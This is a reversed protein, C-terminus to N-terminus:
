SYKFCDLHHQDSWRHGTELHRGSSVTSNRCTAGERRRYFSKGVPQRNPPTPGGGDWSSAKSIFCVKWEVLSAEENAKSRHAAPGWKWNCYKQTTGLQSLWSRSPGWHNKSTCECSQTPDAGELAQPCLVMYWGDMQHMWWMRSSLVGTGCSTLVKEPAKSLGRIPWGVTRQTWISGSSPTDPSVLPDSLPWRYMIVDGKGRPTPLPSRNPCFPVKQPSLLLARYLSLPKPYLTHIQGFVAFTCKLDPCKM